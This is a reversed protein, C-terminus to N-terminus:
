LSQYDDQMKDINKERMEIAKKLQISQELEQNMMDKQWMKRERQAKLYKEYDSIDKEVIYKDIEKM